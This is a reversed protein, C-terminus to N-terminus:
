KNIFERIFDIVEDLTTFFKGGNREIMEGTVRLSKEMKSTFRRIENKSNAKNIVVFVTREPHKNSEDVAEAVSYCGQMFPTIVFLNIDANAKYNNENEVCEPTWNEVIPNFLEVFEVYEFREELVKRWDYGECTGGLFIKIM